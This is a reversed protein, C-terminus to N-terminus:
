ASGAYLFILGSPMTGASSMPPLRAMVLRVGDQLVDGVAVGCGAEAGCVAQFRLKFEVFGHREEGAVEM